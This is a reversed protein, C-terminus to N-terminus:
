TEKRMTVFMAQLDGADTAVLGPELREVYALDALAADVAEHHEDFWESARREDAPLVIVARWTVQADRDRDISGLLPWAAGPVIATPRYVHGTVGDVSDLASAIDQRDGVISM